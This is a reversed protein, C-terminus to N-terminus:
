ISNEKDIPSEDTLLISDFKLRQIKLGELDIKLWKKPARANTKENNHNKKEFINKKYKRRTKCLGL